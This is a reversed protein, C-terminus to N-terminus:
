YAIREGSKFNMGSGANASIQRHFLAKEQVIGDLAM